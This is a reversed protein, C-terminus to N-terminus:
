DRGCGSISITKIHHSAPDAVGDRLAVLIIIFLICRLTATDNPLRPIFLMVWDPRPAGRCRYLGLVLLLSPSSRASSRPRAVVRHGAAALAFLVVFFEPLQRADVPMFVTVALGTTSAWNSRDRVFLLGRSGPLRSRPWCSRSCQSGGSAYRDIGRAGDGPSWRGGPFASAGSDCAPV